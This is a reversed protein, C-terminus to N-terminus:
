VADSIQQYRNSDANLQYNRGMASNRDGLAESIMKDNYGLRGLYSAFSHRASYLCINNKFGFKKGLARLVKNTTGCFRKIAHYEEDPTMDTSLIPFVYPEKSDRNGYKKIHELIGRSEGNSKNYFVEVWIAEDDPVHNLTKHRRFRIRDELLNSKTLYAIDAPAIGNTKYSFWWWDICRQQAVRQEMPLALAMPDYQKFRELEEPQHARQGSESKRLWYKKNKEARKGFPNKEQPLLGREVAQNWLLKLPRLYHRVSNVSFRRVGNRKANLLDSEYSRVWDVTIDRLKIKGKRFEKLKTWDQEYNKWNSIQKSKKNRNVLQLFLDDLYLDSHKSVQNTQSYYQAKFADWTFRDGLEEIIKEAKEEIAAFKRYNKERYLGYGLETSSLDTKFKMQKGSHNVVLRVRYTPVMLKGVVTSEKKLPVRKDLLFNVSPM